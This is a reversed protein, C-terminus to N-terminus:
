KEEITNDIEQTSSLSKYFSFEAFQIYPVLWIFGIGLSLVSLISWGIFSFRLSFLKWRHNKMLRESELVAEKASIDPKDAVITYSLSYYYSKTILWIMSIVYAILGILAIVLLPIIASFNTSNNIASIGTYVLAGVICGLILFLSVGTLIMPVLVKLFTHWYISWTKSFNDFGFSFFDFAKSDESKFIKFLSLLFGFSLPIEIVFLFISWFSSLYTPLVEGIISMVLSIFLYSLTITAVKGWKGKLNERAEKRFDSSKM